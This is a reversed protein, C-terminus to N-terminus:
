YMRITNKVPLYVTSKVTTSDTQWSAPRALLVICDCKYNLIERGLIIGPFLSYYYVTRFVCKKGASGEVGLPGTLRGAHQVHHTKSRYTRQPNTHRKM